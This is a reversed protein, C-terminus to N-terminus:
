IGVGPHWKKGLVPRLLTLNGVGPHWKKGLVPRLLTLNGVGPYFGFTLIGVWPFAQWTLKGNTAGGGEGQPKVFSLHM